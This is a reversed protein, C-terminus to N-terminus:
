VIKKIKTIPLSIQVSPLPIESFIAPFHFQQRGNLVPGNINKTQRGKKQRNDRSYTSNVLILFLAKKKERTWVTKSTFFESNLLATEDGTIEVKTRRYFDKFHTLTM